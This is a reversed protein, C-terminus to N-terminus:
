KGYTHKILNKLEVKKIKKRREYAVFHVHPFKRTIEYVFDFFTLKRRCIIWDVFLTNDGSDHAVAVGNIGAADFLVFIDGRKSWIYSRWVDWGHRDTDRLREYCWAAVKDLSLFDIM